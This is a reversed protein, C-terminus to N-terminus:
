FLLGLAKGPPGDDLNYEKANVHGHGIAFLGEYKLLGHRDQMNKLFFCAPGITANFKISKKLKLLVLDNVPM